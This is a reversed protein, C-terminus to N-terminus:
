DYVSDCAGLAARVYGYDDRVASANAADLTGTSEEPLVAPLGCALHYWLLSGPRVSGAAEDIIDGTAVSFTRPQGPRSLVVISFPDGSVTHVFIQSEAEGPISGPVHFAQGFGSVAMGRLAPKLAEGAISRVYAEREATWGIQAWPRVLRFQNENRGPTLFLLVEQGKISQSRGRSDTPMDVLYEIRSPISGPAMLVNTLQARVLHRRFGPAVDPALREGLRSDRDISARAIVQASLTLSVLDARGPDAAFAGAPLVSAAMVSM